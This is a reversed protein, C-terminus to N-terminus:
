RGSFRPPRSERHALLGEDVDASWELQRRLTLATERAVEFGPQEDVKMIRKAGRVALPGSSAIRSVFERLADDFDAASVVSQVFGIRDMERVDIDRGTCILELARPRGVLRSLRLPGGAGPFGGWRAEPMSFRAHDAAVRIDCALALEVGGARVSGNLGAIVIQPLAEIADFAAGAEVVLDIVAQKSMSSRLVPNLLGTSFFESGEGRVVVVHVDQDAGLTRAISALGTIAEATLRNQEAVNGITISAIQGDIRLALGPWSQHDAPM